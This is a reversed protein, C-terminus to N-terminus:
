ARTTQLGAAAVKEGLAEAFPVLGSLPRLEVAARFRRASNM